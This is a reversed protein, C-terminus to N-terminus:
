SSESYLPPACGQLIIALIYVLQRDGVGAHVLFPADKAAPAYCGGGLGDPLDYSGRASLGPDARSAVLPQLWTYSVRSGRPTWIKRACGLRTFAMVEAFTLVLAISEAVRAWRNRM